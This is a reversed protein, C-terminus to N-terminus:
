NPLKLIRPIPIYREIATGLKFPISISSIKSMMWLCYRITLVRTELLIKTNLKSFVKGKRIEFANDM